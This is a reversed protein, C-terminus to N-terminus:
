LIEIRKKESWATNITSRHREYVHFIGLVRAYRYLDSVRGTTSDSSDIDGLLM